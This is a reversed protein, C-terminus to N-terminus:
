FGYLNMHEGFIAIRVMLYGRIHQPKVSLPGGSKQPGLGELVSKIVQDAIYNVHTGGRCTNISNVFSVQRFGSGDTIGVAIEWRDNVVECVRFADPELHLAVYDEFSHVNLLEGNLFVQCRGHTSAAVDFARRKMLAVIDKELTKMQFRLLDPFFTIRTFDDASDSTGDTIEPPHAVTMNSDWVQKYKKGVRSDATEVVFRTSFINALKAGYGNRGGVVKKESDDYNDSTLLHGFILEPVYCGHEKHLEVPIGQGNNWVSISGRKSDIEVCITDQSPCRILNDAANVLIEDYIKFLAPIYDLKRLVMRGSSENFVWHDMEQRETSGVYSDPRLLIHELQTKKQYTEEVTRPAGSPRRTAPASSTSPAHRPPSAVREGTFPAPRRPVEPPRKSPQSPTATPTSTSDVKMEEGQPASTAAEKPPRGRGKKQIEDGSAAAQKASSARLPAPAAAVLPAVEPKQVPASTIIEAPPFLDALTDRIAAVNQELQSLGETRQRKNSEMQETTCSGRAEEGWPM